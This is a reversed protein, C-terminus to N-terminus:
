QLWFGGRHPDLLLVTEKGEDGGPFPGPMQREGPADPSGNPLYPSQDMRFPGGLTILSGQGEDRAKGLYKLIYGVASPDAPYIRAMGTLHAATGEWRHMFRVRRMADLRKSGGVVAHLHVRGHYTYEVVAVYLLGRRRALKLDSSQYTAQEMRSFWKRFISCALSPSTDEKFTFTCFWHWHYSKLWHVWASRLEKSGPSRADFASSMAACLDSRKRPGNRLGLDTRRANKRRRKEKRRRDREQEELVQRAEKHAKWAERPDCDAPSQGGVVGRVQPRELPQPSFAPGAVFRPASGSLLEAGRAPLGEAGIAGSPTTIGRAENDTSRDV